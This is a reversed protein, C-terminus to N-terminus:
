NVELYVDDAWSETYVRGNIWVIGDDGYDPCSGFTDTLMWDTKDIDDYETTLTLQHCFEEGGGEVGANIVTVMYIPDGDDILHIRYDGSGDGYTAIINDDNANVHIM